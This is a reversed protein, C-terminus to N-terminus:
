PRIVRAAVQFTMSQQISGLSYGFSRYGNVRLDHPSSTSSGCCACGSCRSQKAGSTASPPYRRIACACRVARSVRSQKEWTSLRQKRRHTSKARSRWTSREDWFWDSTRPCFACRCCPEHYFRSNAAECFHSSPQASTPASDPWVAWHMM